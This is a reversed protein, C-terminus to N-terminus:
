RIVLDRYDGCKQGFKDFTVNTMYLIGRLGPNSGEAGKLAQHWKM